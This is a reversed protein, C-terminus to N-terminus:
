EILKEKLLVIFREPTNPSIVIKRKGELVVLNDRNTVYYLDVWGFKFTSFSGFTGFIGHCSSGQCHVRFRM